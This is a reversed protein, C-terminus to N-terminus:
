RHEYRFSFEDVYRGPHGRSVHHDRRAQALQFRACRDACAALSVATRMSSDTALDVSPVALAGTALFADAAEDTRLATDIGARGLLARTEAFLASSAIGSSPVPVNPDKLAIRVQLDTSGLPIISM